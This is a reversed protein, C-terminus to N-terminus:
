GDLYGLVSLVKQTLRSLPMGEFDGEVWRWKPYYDSSPSGLFRPVNFVDLTLRRHTFVHRVATLHGGVEVKLGMRGDLVVTLADEPCAGDEVPGGPLEWLGGLLGGEPRRTLLVAGKADRVLAGVARVERPPKRRDKLPYREEAGTGFAKCEACIPCVSCDPQRPTCVMAGLEMLAQNHSSPDEPDVWHEATEWLIRQGQSKDVRMELALLRSIVRTVNGDLVPAPQQFAISAIAGATYRGVGPLTLLAEVDGPIEGNFQEVVVKAAAHLHRCRRYYGLGAWLTIVQEESASALAVVDPFAGVFREFYPIVTKVQTQQLMVESVWVRYPTPRERWPLARRSSLYWRRLEIRADVLRQLVTSEAEIAPSPVSM